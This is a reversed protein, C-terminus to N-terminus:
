VGPRIGMAPVRRQPRPTQHGERLLKSGEPAAQPTDDVGGDLRQGSFRELQSSINPGLQRLVGSSHPIPWTFPSGRNPAQPSNGFQCTDAVARSRPRAPTFDLVDPRLACADLKLAIYGTRGVPDFSWDSVYEDITLPRGAAPPPTRRTCVPFTYLRSRTYLHWSSESKLLLGASIDWAKSDCRAAPSM